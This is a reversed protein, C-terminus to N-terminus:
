NLIFVPSQINDEGHGAGPVMGLLCHIKLLYKNNNKKLTFSSTFGALHGSLAWETVLVKSPAKLFTFM